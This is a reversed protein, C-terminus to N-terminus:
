LCGFPCVGISSAAGLQERNQVVHDCLVLSCCTGDLDAIVARRCSAGIVAPLQFGVDPARHDTRENDDQQKNEETEPSKLATDEKTIEKESSEDVTIDSDTDFKVASKIESEETKTEEDPIETTIEESAGADTLTEEKPQEQKVDEETM